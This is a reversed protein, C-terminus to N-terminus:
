SSLNKKLKNYIYSATYKQNKNYDDCLLINLACEVDNDTYGQERRTLQAAYAKIECHLRYWSSYRLLLIHFIGLARVFQWCHTYEHIVLEEKQLKTLNAKIIVFLGFSYADFQKIDKPFTELEIVPFPFMRFFVFMMRM